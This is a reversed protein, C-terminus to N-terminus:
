NCPILTNNNLYNFIDQAIIQHGIESPHSDSLTANKISYIDSLKDFIVTKNRIQAFEYLLSKNKQGVNQLPILVLEGNYYDNIKRIAKKQYKYVNKEGFEKKVQENALKFAEYPKGQKVLESLEGSQKFEKFYKDNLPILKEYIRDFDIMLWLVLDPNYKIGRLRYREVAYEFDYGGVGLNIIEFNQIKQCKLKENLLKELQSPWNYKTDVNVGFTFSDGLTIIRFTYPLKQIFYEHMANLSDSNITSDAKFPLWDFPHQISNAKPEFFYRLNSDPNNDIDNKQIPNLSVAGLINKRKQYIKYGLLLIVFVQIIILVLFIRIKM